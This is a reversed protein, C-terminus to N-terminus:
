PCADNPAGPTGYNGAFYSTTATCWNGATDNSTADLTAPDLTLSYGALNPFSTTYAVRDIEVGDNSLVVEDGSNGMQLSGGYVYDAVIGGNASTTGSRVFTAYRGPLVELDTIMDFTEGDDDAVTWGCMTILTTSANYVEFWEGSTDLVTGTPDKMIETIVLEGAAMVGEDCKGDCDNDVGDRFELAGGYVLVNTDDCDDELTWGDGDQDDDNGDCDDDVGDYWTEPEGPNINPELDDCDDAIGYGDADQDDDFGDCDEDVGNYWVETARPYATADTDDCDVTYPYGDLDQDTDNGDCDQDVGDYWVEAATPSRGADTDDCDAALETGDGDQDQDNGGACDQDVGDYWVEPAGPYISAVTDDCDVDVLFTDGDQDDDNGDCNQDIDDYWIEEEGSNVLADTDDCDATYALGDGDQDTDNGDCDQDTGDYWIEPTGPNVAADTDVCDDARLFGDADQDDDRGDCDQDVSDYWVETEGPNVAANLDNCDDALNYGDLDQDQDNGDCDDDVGDYWAEIALPNVAPNTDDCDDALVFGDADQDDDTGDCDQDVGDYWLERADPAIDANTDDCDGDLETWGDGDDDSLETQDDVLGNCDNDAGDAVEVGGPYTTPDGDDCDGDCTTVDDVDADLCPDVEITVGCVDVAGRPDTVTLTLLHSGGTLTLASTTVTGSSAPSGTWLVGDIDSALVAELDAADTEGDSAHALFPIADDTEFTDGASPSDIECSPITNVAPLIRVQAEAAQGNRDIVSVGITQTTGTLPLSLGLNGGPCTEPTSGDSEWLVGDVSSQVLIQLEDIRDEDDIQACFTVAGTPDFAANDLPTIIEVTPPKDSSGLTSENCAALTLLAVLM